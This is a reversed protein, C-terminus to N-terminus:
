RKNLWVPSSGSSASALVAGLLPRDRLLMQRTDPPVTLASWSVRLHPVAAPVKRVLFSTATGAVAIGVCVCSAIWLRYATATLSQRDEMALDSLVGASAAGFIIALFTTMLIIGNARPLDSPRLMEPLIGYKSPGFFASHSGMLFLRAIGTGLQLFATFWAVLRAM